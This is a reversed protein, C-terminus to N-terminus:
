PDRRSLRQTLDSLKKQVEELEDDEAFRVSLEYYGQAQEYKGLVNYLDGLHSFITADSDIIRSAELLNVEAQDYRKLRFYVWGLSDLYAGNHPEIEVAKVIYDLAELLRIGRDALMYGLYNLVGSHQPNIELIDQFMSEVEEWEEQQEYLAGLQFKVRESEPYRVLAERLINEAERYKEHDVYLQSAALLLDQPDRHNQIGENLLETSEELKDAASLVQARAIVSYTKSPEEEYSNEASQEILQESLELAEPLRGADKLAYVLRLSAFNDEPIEESIRRFIEIAEDFRRMRQYLLALNTDISRIQDETSSAERLHLFRDVAKQREGLLTEIEALQYNIGYNEPDTASAEEFIEAAEAYRKNNRLARGLTMRIQMNRPYNRSLERLLSAAEGPREQDLFLLALRYQMDSDTVDTLARSYLQQAKEVQDTQEYLDGLVKINELYSRDYVLSEELAAIAEAMEGLQVHAKAKLEYGQVIWPRLEIFRNMVEVTERYSERGLLLRGLEYLAAFHEPDLAVTKRFEDIALDRLTAPDGNRSTSHIRGLLFHPDSNQPDLESALQCAEIARRTRGAKWLTEAFEVKLSASQPDLAVAKEFESIAERYEERLEHMRALSFHYYSGAFDVTQASLGGEIMAVVIIFLTFRKM